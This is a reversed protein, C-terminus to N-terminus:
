LPQLYAYYNTSNNTNFIETLHGQATSTVNFDM